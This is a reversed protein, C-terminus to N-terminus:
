KGLLIKQLEPVTEAVAIAGADVADRKSRFGFGFTVGIFDIGCANAGNADHLTDGILVSQYPEGGSTQYLCEKVIDTKSLKGEFDSGMIFDFLPTFSFQDLLKKTYDERKYTAVATKIRSKHLAELLTYIGPYVEAEFLFQNKYANRFVEAARAATKDDLNYKNKLSLQIPPGIFSRKEDPTLSTYGMQSIALDVSKLIGQSTDMLTGDLDFLVSQYKSM